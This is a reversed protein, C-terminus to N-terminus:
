ICEKINLIENEVMAFWLWTYFPTLNHGWPFYLNSGKIYDQATPPPFDCGCIQGDPLRCANVIEKRWYNGM